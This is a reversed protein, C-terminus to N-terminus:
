SAFTDYCVFAEIINTSKIQSNVKAILEKRSCIYIYVIDSICRTRYAVRINMLSVKIRDSWRFSQVTVDCRTLLMQRRVSYEQTLADNIQELTSWQEVSLPQTLLPCGVDVQRQSM